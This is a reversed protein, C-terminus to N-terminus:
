QRALSNEGTFLRMRSAYHGIDSFGGELYQAPAASDLDRIWDAHSFFMATRAKQVSVDIGFRPADANQFFGLVSRVELLQFVSLERTTERGAITMVLMLTLWGSM